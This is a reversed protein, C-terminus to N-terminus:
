WLASLGFAALAGGAFAGVTVCVPAGGAVGGVIGAGTITAERAIAQPKDGANAVTYISLALSVVLLGRGARSLNRMNATVTPNSKGASRVIEGYVANQWAVSLRNFGARPRYLQQAKRAILENLSKSESKLQQAMARSVPTSRSRIVDM